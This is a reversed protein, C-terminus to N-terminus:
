FLYFPLICDIVYGRPVLAVRQWSEDQRFRTLHHGVDETTMVLASALLRVLEAPLVRIRDKTAM